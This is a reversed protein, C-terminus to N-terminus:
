SEARPFSEAMRDSWVYFVSVRDGVRPESRFKRLSMRMKNPCTGDNCPSERELSCTDSHIEKVIYYGLTRNNM